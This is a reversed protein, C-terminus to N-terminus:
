IQEKTFPDLTCNNSTIWPRFWVKFQNVTMNLAKKGEVIYQYDVNIPAYGELKILKGNVFKKIKM